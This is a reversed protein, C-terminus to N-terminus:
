SLPKTQYSPSGFIYVLLNTTQTTTQQKLHKESANLLKTSKTHSSQHSLCKSFKTVFKWNRLSKIIVLWRLEPSISLFNAHTSKDGHNLYFDERATAIRWARLFILSFSSLLWRLLVFPRDLLLKLSFAVNKRQFEIYYKDEKMESVLHSYNM